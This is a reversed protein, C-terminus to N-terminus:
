FLELGGKKLFFFVQIKKGTLNTEFYVTWVLSEAKNELVNLVQITVIINEICITLSSGGGKSKEICYSKLVVFSESM